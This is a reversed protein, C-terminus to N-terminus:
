AFEEDAFLSLNELRKLHGCEYLMETAEKVYRDYDIDEPLEKPLDMCPVSGESVPVKNGSRVYYIPEASGKGYYYRVTKGLYIAEGKITKAAGGHVNRVIVFRRIDKCEKITKDIPTGNKLLSIVADSCVLTEPNKSLISNLASGRECFVGKTKVGLKEDLFRAEPDNDEKIAIYNNVDRSYVALYKTEETKFATHNEWAAVMDRVEQHREESYKCIIGDTNASIVQIGMDELAEILMLLVLQGTITVQLMLQPAYLTSYKNGLKGFSGNIVIKLSDAIVKHLKMEAHLRIREEKAGEVDKLAKIKEKCEAAKRKAEVRTDVIKEYVALFAPGLHPPFLKQNLIIRPYFSEVDNDRILKGDKTIHATKKETSHIGGMGLKYKMKGIKVSLEYKPEGKEEKVVEGLGAPWIPSGLGDLYFEANLIQNLAQNLEPTQFEIFNPLNYKLPGNTELTPKRPYRGLVKELEKNIVAEAIQADSKSRLDIGYEDSMDIRLKIESALEDFLLDTNDLDNACYPRVMAADDFSLLEDPEIPLDQMRPAHIRGSYLKLSSPRESVGGNVPCVNFLDIHNFVPITIGYKNQIDWPTVKKTGWAKGSQIIYDSAEKLEENTKGSMALVCMPIDYSNSNFGVLCFRWMLWNLKDIELLRDCSLEFDVYKGNEKSKFCGYWLNHYTEVDFIMISGVPLALLEEDTMFNVIRKTLHKISKALNSFKNSTLFGENDIEYKM